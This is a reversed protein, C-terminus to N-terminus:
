KNKPPYLMELFELYFKRAEDDSLAEDLEQVLTDNKYFRLHQQDVLSYSKREESHLILWM